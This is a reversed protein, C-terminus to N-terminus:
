NGAFAPIKKTLSIYDSFLFLLNIKYKKQAFLILFNNVSNPTENVLYGGTRTHM